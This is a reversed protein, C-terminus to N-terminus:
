KQPQVPEDPLKSEELAFNVPVMYWVPVPVGGQEGPTFAPLSSVVRAAEADLAPDVGKIVKIQEVSGTENVCFRVIVRGTIKNAKASEPYQVNDIIYKLLTSDGGPFQPMKEVVVFPEKSKEADEPKVKVIEYYEQMNQGEGPPPPPPPPGNEKSLAFTIPVMYWVPVEMGGQKGPQFKPLTSVVRVAEADLDPGVGKLVSIRDVIGDAEVAFRAIVRGEIGNDKAEEPYHTNEAIYKLLAEDGGPFMPMEEVVVFPEPETSTTMTTESVPQSGVTATGASKKMVACTSFSILLILLVPLVLLIKLNVLAKSRRKTMMIMRKKILTPNSFNNVTNFIKTSFVQNLMLGQYGHVTIGSRICEMDAQYEHVARLSRDFLYIFPNFWQIVKIVEILIIDVFHYRNLHKQEHRVIKEAEESDMDSQIFIHGFASFASLSNDKLRIVHSTNKKNKIILILLIAIESLLKLGFILVGTIYIYLAIKGLDAIFYQEASNTPSNFNGTIYVDTLDKSFFQMDLPEKTEITILPLLLSSLLSLLIFIRNREYMTDRCLFLQSVIYLAALCIVAKILYIILPNM